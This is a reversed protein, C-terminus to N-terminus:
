TKQDQSFQEFSMNTTFEEIKQICELILQFYVKESKM